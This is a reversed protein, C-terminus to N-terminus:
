YITNFNGLIIIFKRNRMEDTLKPKIYNPIQNYLSYTNIIATDEQYMSGKINRFYGEKDQLINRTRCNM